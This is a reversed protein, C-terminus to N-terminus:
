GVDGRRSQLVPLYYLICMSRPSTPRTLDKDASTPHQGLTGEIVSVLIYGKTGMVRVRNRIRGFKKM